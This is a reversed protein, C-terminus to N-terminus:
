INAILCNWDIGIHLYSIYLWLAIIIMWCCVFLSMICVFFACWLSIWHINLDYKITSLKHCDSLSLSFIRCMFSSVNWNVCVNRLWILDWLIKKTEEVVACVREKYSMDKLWRHGFWSRPVGSKASMTYLPTIKGLRYTFDYSFHQTHPQSASACSLPPSCGFLILIDQHSKKGHLTQMHKHTLIQCMAGGNLHPENADTPSRTYVTGGEPVYLFLLAFSPFLSLLTSLLLVCFFLQCM